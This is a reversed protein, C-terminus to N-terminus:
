QHTDFSFPFARATSAQSGETVTSSAAALWRWEMLHQRERECAEQTASGEFRM